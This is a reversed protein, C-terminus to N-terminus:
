LLLIYINMINTRKQLTQKANGPRQPQTKYKDRGLQSSQTAASVRVGCCASCPEKNELETGHMHAGQKSIACNFIILAILYIHPGNALVPLAFSAGCLVRTKLFVFRTRLDTIINQVKVAASQRAPWEPAGSGWRRKREEEETGEMRRRAARGCARWARSILCKISTNTRPVLWTHHCVSIM